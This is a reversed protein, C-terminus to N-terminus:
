RALVSEIRRVRAVVARANGALDNRVVADAFGARRAAAAM